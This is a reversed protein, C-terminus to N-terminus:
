GELIKKQLAAIDRSNVKGDSNMDAAELAKGELRATDLVHKQVAAIDRSNVKGDGNVDGKIADTGPTPTPVPTPTPIVTTENPAIKYGNWTTEGNPAWSLKYNEPYYITFNEKAGDFVRGGFNIPPEGYCVASELNKANRFANDGITEVSAGIFVNKLSSCGNFASEGIEKVSDPIVVADLATCEAFAAYGITKLGDNLGIGKLSKCGYFANQDIKEISTPLVMNELSTCLYFASNGINKVGNPINVKKLSTCEFFSHDGLINVSAPLEIETLKTCYEFASAAITTTGEKVALKGTKGPVCLILALGDKTYIVNDIVQYVSNDDSVTITEVGASNSFIATGLSKLGKGFSVSKLSSCYSFAEMGVSEVSDPLTISTIKSFAFAFDAIATVPYNNGITAPVNVAGGTGKYGTIMAKSGVLIYEFEADVPLESISGDFKSLQYGNWTTEGNPAWASAKEETYGVTFNFATGTFVNGGFATPPVGKFNAAVLNSAHMFAMNGITTVSAPIVVNALSSCNRFASSGITSLSDPLQVQELGTCDFFAESGIATVGTPLVINKLMKCGEFARDPIKTTSYSWSMSELAECFSFAGNDVEIVSAPIVINKLSSEAFAYEGIKRLGYNLTLEGLKSAGEFATDAIEEVSVPVSFAGSRAEPYAVLVKQSANYLVGNNSVFSANGSAVSITALNRCKSFVGMGLTEVGKGLTVSKIGSEAFAENGISTVSDPITVNELATCFVFALPGVTKITSPITIKTLLECGFFAGEGIATVNKGNYQSPIDLVGSAANDCATVSYTGDSLATFTLSEVGAKTEVEVAYVVGFTSLVMVFATVIAILKATLGHKM